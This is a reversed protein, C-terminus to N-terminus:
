PGTRTPLGANAWDEFGGLNTTKFGKDALMQAAMGSRRGSRCYLIIEKSKDLNKLFDAYKPNGEEMEYMSFWSAPAAMGEQVEDLERVDILVARNEKVAALAESPTMM